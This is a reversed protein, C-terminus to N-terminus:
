ANKQAISGYGKLLNGPPLGGKSFLIAGTSFIRPGNVVGSDIRQRITKTIEWYSGTDFVTTFGYRTLMDQLQRTLQSPPMSAAKEWKSEIFHVHSNWFGAMLTLGTCDISETNPPIRIKGEEGLAVIKGNLILVVGKDIPKELPSPYIKAGILALSKNKDRALSQGTVSLISICHGIGFLLIFINLRVLKKM